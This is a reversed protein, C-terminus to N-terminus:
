LVAITMLNLAFGTDAQVRPMAFEKIYATFYLSETYKTDGLLLDKKSFSITAM